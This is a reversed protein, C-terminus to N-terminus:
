LPFREVLMMASLLIATGSAALTWVRQSLKLYRLAFYNLVLFISVILVQGLELGVNFSFLPYVIAAEKGLLSRFFNSFGLGHILGFVLTILYNWEFGRSERPSQQVLNFVAMLFISLPILFEIWAADVQVINLAALALTVSHGVTFATVLILVKKWQLYSYIACMAVLYLIHDYGALDTIHEIGLQFYTSFM